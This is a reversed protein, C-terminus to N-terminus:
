ATAGSGAAMGPDGALIAMACVDRYRGDKFTAQRFRGEVIFGCREYLRIAPANDALVELSVRNLNLDRFAHQLLAAIAARGYGKGRSAPDGIFIHLVASRAVWDIRRLYINGVHIGTDSVCIALNVENSDFQSKRRLWEVEAGRGVFRFADGLTAYLAPDNHWALTRELDGDCLARLHILPTPM